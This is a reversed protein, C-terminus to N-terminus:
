NSAAQHTSQQVPKWCSPPCEWVSKFRSTRVVMDATEPCSSRIYSLMGNYLDGLDEEIVPEYHMVWNRVDNAKEAVKLLDDRSTSHPFAKKLVGDWLKDAYHGDLLQVWLGFNSAAVFRDHPKPETFTVSSPKQKVDDKLKKKAQCIKSWFGHCADDEKKLHPTSCWLDRWEQLARIDYWDGNGFHRKYYETITTDLVNRLTIEFAQLPVYLSESLRTNWQHLEFAKKADNSARSLYYELRGASFTRQLAAWLATTYEPNNEEIRNTAAHLMMGLEQDHM